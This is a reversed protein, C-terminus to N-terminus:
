ICHIIEIKKNQRFPTQNMAMLSPSVTRPLPRSSTTHASCHIAEHKAPESASPRSEFSWSFTVGLSFVFCLKDFVIQKSLNPNPQALDKGGHQLITRKWIGKGHPMEANTLSVSRYLDFWGHAGSNPARTAETSHCTTSLKSSASPGPAHYTSTKSVQSNMWYCQVQKWLDLVTPSSILSDVFWHVDTWTKESFAHYISEVSCPYIVLYLLM